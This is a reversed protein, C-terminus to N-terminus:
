PLTQLGLRNLLDHKHVRSVPIHKGTQLALTGGDGKQYSAIRKLNVIYSVHVRCFDPNTKLQEHMHKLTKSLLIRRGGELYIETYNSQSELYIIQDMDLFETGKNTSVPLKKPSFSVKQLLNELNPSCNREAKRIASELEDTDVPKLLYDLANAKFAKLAYQEYATTFIVAYNLQKTAEVIDFGTATPLEIDLFVLQPQLNLIADIGSEATHAVKAVHIRNSYDQLLSLLVDASNKEDDIIVTNIM